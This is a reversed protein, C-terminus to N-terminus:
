TTASTRAWAVFRRLGERLPVEPSWGLEDRARAIDAYTADVDGVPVDTREIRPEAGVAEGIAEVLASL